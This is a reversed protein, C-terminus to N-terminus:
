LDLCAVASSGICGLWLKGNHEVLGTALAFQSDTTRLQARVRGDLDVAIAWVVPKPNPM